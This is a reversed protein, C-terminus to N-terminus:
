LFIEFLLIYHKVIGINNGQDDLVHNVQADIMAIPVDIKLLYLIEM